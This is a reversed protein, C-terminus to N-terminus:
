SYSLFAAFANLDWVFIHLGLGNEVETVLRTREGESGLSACCRVFQELVSWIRVRRGAHTYDMVASLLLLLVHLPITNCGYKVLSSLV